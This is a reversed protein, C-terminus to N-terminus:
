VSKKHQGSLSITIERALQRKNIHILMILNFASFERKRNWNMCRSTSIEADVSVGKLTVKWSFFTYLCTVICLLQISHTYPTTKSCAMVVAETNKTLFEGLTFFQLPPNSPIVVAETNKTLFEGLTFFQLPPNSPINRFVNEWKTNQHLHYPISDYNQYNLQM